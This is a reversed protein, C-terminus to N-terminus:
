QTREMFNRAWKIMDGTTMGRLFPNARLASKSMYRSVPDNRNSNWIRAATSAGAFHALYMTTNNIPIDKKSLINQNEETLKIFFKQSIEPDKRLALKQQYTKGKFLEPFHQNGIRIWTSKVFQHLGTASSRPNKAHIRGASEKKILRNSYTELDFGVVPQTVVRQSPPAPKGERVNIPGKTAPVAGFPRIVTHTGTLVKQQSATLAEDRVRDFEPAKTFVLAGELRKPGADRALVSSSFPHRRVSGRSSSSAHGPSFIAAFKRSFPTENTAGTYPAPSTYVNKRTSLLAKNRYENAAEVTADLEMDDRNQQDYAASRNLDVFPLRPDYLSKPKYVTKPRYVGLSKQEEPM